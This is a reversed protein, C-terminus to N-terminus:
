SVQHNGLIVVGASKETLVCASQKMADFFCARTPKSVSQEQSVSHKSLVAQAGFVPFLGYKSLIFLVIFSDPRGIQTYSDLMLGLM